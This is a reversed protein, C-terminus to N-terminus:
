RAASAGTCRRSSWGSTAAASSSAPAEASLRRGHHQSNTYYPVRELGPMPPVAARGGVNIFIRPAEHARRRGAAHAARRLARARSLGHLRGHRGAMRRAWRNSERVIADKRAKVQQMDVRVAGGIRIGYVGARRAVHATRASAVLTKTPICGNNVCTGGFRKREIIAIKLGAKRSARRSRRAPKARASSSPTTNSKWTSRWADSVRAMRRAACM